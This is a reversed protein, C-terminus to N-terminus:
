HMGEGTLRNYPPRPIAIIRVQNSGLDEITVEVRWDDPVGKARVQETLERIVHDVSPPYGVM